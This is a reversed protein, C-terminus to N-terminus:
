FLSSNVEKSSAFEKMKEYFIDHFMVRYQTGFTLESLEPMSCLGMALDCVYKLPDNLQITDPDTERGELIM